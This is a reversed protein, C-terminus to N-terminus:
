LEDDDALDDYVSEDSNNKANPEIEEARGASRSLWM